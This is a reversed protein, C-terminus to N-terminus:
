RPRFAAHTSLGPAQIYLQLTPSLFFCGPQGAPPIGFFLAGPQMSFSQLWIHDRIRRNKLLANKMQRLIAITKRIAFLAVIGIAFIVLPITFPTELFHSM